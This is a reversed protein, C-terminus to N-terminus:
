TEHNDGIMFNLRECLKTMVITNNNIADTIKNVEEQHQENLLKTDARHTESMHWVYYAMAICCAFPFGINTIVEVWNM